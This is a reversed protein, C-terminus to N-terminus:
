QRQVPEGGGNLIVTVPEDGLEAVLLGLDVSRGVDHEDVGLDDGDDLFLLAPRILMEPRPPCRTHPRGVQEQRGLHVAPSVTVEGILPDVSQQILESLPQVDAVACTPQDVEVADVAEAVGLGGAQQIGTDRQV